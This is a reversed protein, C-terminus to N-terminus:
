RRRLELLARALQRDLAPDMSGIHALEDERLAVEVDPILGTGDLSQGKSTFYESTSLYLGSGDILRITEQAFGKGGTREGVLSAWEYERLCAAFFEAASVSNGNIIVTMPLSIHEPGSYRVDQRGDKYRLTILEGEPLLFDLVTELVSLKGGPNDRVDFVLGAVGYEIMGNVKEIFETDMHDDFNLIKLVGAEGSPTEIIEAKIRDRIVARRM